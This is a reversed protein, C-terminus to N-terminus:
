EEKIIIVKLIDGKEANIPLNVDAWGDTWATDVEVEVANSMMQQKQWNAGAKFANCIYRDTKDMVRPYGKRVNLVYNNTTEGLDDSIPEEQMHHLTKYLSNIVEMRGQEVGNDQESLGIYTEEKLRDLEAKFIEKDTM